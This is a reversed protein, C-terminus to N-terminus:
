EGARIIGGRIWGWLFAREAEVEVTGAFQAEPAGEDQRSM